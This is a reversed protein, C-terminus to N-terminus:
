HLTAKVLISNFQTDPIPASMLSVISRSQHSPWLISLLFRTISIFRKFTNIWSDRAEARSCIGCPFADPHLSHCSKLHFIFGSCWRLSLCAALHVTTKWWDVCDPAPRPRPSELYRRGSTSWSRNSTNTSAKQASWRIRDPHRTEPRSSSWKSAASYFPM